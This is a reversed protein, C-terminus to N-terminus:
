KVTALTDSPDAYLPIIRNFSPMHIFLLQTAHVSVALIADYPLSALPTEPSLLQGNCFCTLVFMDSYFHGGLISLATEITDGYNGRLTFACALPSPILM